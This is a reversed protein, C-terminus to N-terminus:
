VHGEIDSTVHSFKSFRVMRTRSEHNGGYNDEESFFVLIIIFILSSTLLAQLYFKERILRVFTKKNPQLTNPSTRPMPPSKLDEQIGFLYDVTLQARYFM